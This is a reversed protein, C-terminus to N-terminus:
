PATGGAIPKMAVGFSASAWFLPLGVVVAAAKRKWCSAGLQLSQPEIM